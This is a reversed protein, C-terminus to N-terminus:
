SKNSKYSNLINWSITRRLAEDFSYVPNFRVTKEAKLCDPVDFLTSSYQNKSSKIAIEISSNISNKVKNAIEILSIPKSSGINYVAGSDGLIMLNLLIVALDSGYLYSKTTKENGLIRIPGGLIGDRIFNNLAWPKDLSQFPGIFAFPRTIIIPLHFESIYAKCLSESVRKAEAYINIEQFVSQFDNRESVPQNNYNNPYVKSSSLHIIKKLNPLRTAQDLINQTGKYFVDLTRIPSSIHERSDPSGAAHIIYNISNPIEKLNRIDSKIFHFNSNEELSFNNPENRALIYVQINLRKEQNLVALMESLWTGIFGTGGTILIHSDRFNELTALSSNLSKLCDERIM